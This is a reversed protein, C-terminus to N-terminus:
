RTFRRTGDSRRSAGTPLWERPAQLNRFRGSWDRSPRTWAAPGARAAGTLDCYAYALSNALARECSENARRGRKVQAQMDRAVQEFTAPLARALALMQGQSISGPGWLEQALRSIVRSQLERPLGQWDESLKAAAFRSAKPDEPATRAPHLIILALMSAHWELPRWPTHRPQAPLRRLAAEVKARVDFYAPDLAFTFKLTRRVDPAPARAANDGHKEKAQKKTM